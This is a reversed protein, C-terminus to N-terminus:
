LTAPPVPSELDCDSYSSPCQLLLFFEAIDMYSEFLVGVYIIEYLLIQSGSIFSSSLSSSEIM